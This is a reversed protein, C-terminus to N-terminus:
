GLSTVLGLDTGANGLLDCKNCALGPQKNSDELSKWSSESCWRNQWSVFSVFSLWRKVKRQGKEAIRSKWLLAPQFRLDELFFVPPSTQTRWHEEWANTSFYSGLWLSSMAYTIGTGVCFTRGWGHELLGLYMVVECNSVINDDVNSGVSGNKTLCFCPIRWRMWGDRVAELENYLFVCGKCATGSNNNNNYIYLFVFVCSCVPWSTMSQLHLSLSLNACHHCFLQTCPLSM